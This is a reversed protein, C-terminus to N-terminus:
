DRRKPEKLSIDKIKYFDPETLKSFNIRVKNDKNNSEVIVSNNKQFNFKNNFNQRLNNNFLQQSQILQFNSFM